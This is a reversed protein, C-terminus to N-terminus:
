RTYNTSENKNTKKLKIPLSKSIRQLFLTKGHFLRFFLM